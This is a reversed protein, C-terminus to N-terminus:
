ARVISASYAAASAPVATVSSGYRPGIRSRRCPRHAGRRRDRPARRAARTGRRPKPRHAPPDRPRGPLRRGGADPAPPAVAAPVAPAWRRLRGPAVENAWQLLREARLSEAETGGRSGVVRSAYTYLDQRRSDDVADNYARLFAGIAPSVCRPRDSFAEGALMSALEMVCAGDDPSSHKGKSLRVTQHSVVVM